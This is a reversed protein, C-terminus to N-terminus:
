IAFRRADHDIRQPLHKSPAPGPRSEAGRRRGRDPFRCRADINQLLHQSPPGAKVGRRVATPQISLRGQGPTRTPAPEARGAPRRYTPAPPKPIGM